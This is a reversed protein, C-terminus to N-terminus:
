TCGASLARSAKERSGVVGIVECGLHRAWQCLLHGVGGAAAHVLIIEGEKVAHVRHLLFEATLGKLMVAAATEDDIFDPLPVVLDAPLSRVEAYAGIPPGAYAIRDGPAFGVVDAGADLVVGAAEMGLPAPPQVLPFY